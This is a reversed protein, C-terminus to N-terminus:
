RSTDGVGRTEAGFKVGGKTARPQPDLLRALEDARDLLSDRWMRTDLLANPDVIAFGKDFERIAAVLLSRARGYHGMATALKEGKAREIPTSMSSGVQAQDTFGGSGTGGGLSHSTTHASGAAEVAVAPASSGTDTVAPSGGSTAGLSPEDAHLPTTLLLSLGLTLSLSIKKM